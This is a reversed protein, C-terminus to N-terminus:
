QIGGKLVGEGKNRYLEDYFEKTRKDGIKRCLSRLRLSM